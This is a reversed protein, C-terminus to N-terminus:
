ILLNNLFNKIKNKSFNIIIPKSIKGIKKILILNIKNNSNKKDKQMFSVIKNIKNKKFFKNIKMPLKLESYHKEILLLDNKPLLKVKNALHSAAIMGLLVAEGHNLKKSFNAAAEFGHAFTHGFNLIMRLNKEKEDLSVIKSKIKCSQIIALKTVKKNKDNIIKKANKTLWFFFSRNLILAHKLIEGYGCIMERRPLNNLISIDILVFDPQYFTGILNKGQLSNVATKGGISADVQALLTTPINIFKIGRKTLNSVFASLDGTIGGGFSIICDSRSLNHKLIKEILKQAYIFNKTKETATIKYIKPNYKKLSKNLKKLFIKPVNKDYIIVVKKTAPLNKKIIKGTRSLIGDGFFIPYSKSKTNIIIKNNNM